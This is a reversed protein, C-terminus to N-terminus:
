ANEKLFRTVSLLEMSLLLEM